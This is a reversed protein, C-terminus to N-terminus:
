TGCAALIHRRAWDPRTLVEYVDNVDIKADMECKLQLKEMPESVSVM